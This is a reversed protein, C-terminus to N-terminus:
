ISSGNMRLANALEQNLRKAKRAARTFILELVPPPDGNEDCVGVDTRQDAVGLQVLTDRVADQLANLNNEMQKLPEPYGHLQEKIAILRKIKHVFESVLNFSYSIFRKVFNNQNESTCFRIAKDNKVMAEHIKQESIAISEPNLALAADM